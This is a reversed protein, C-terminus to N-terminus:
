SECKEEIKNVVFLQSFYNYIMVKKNMINLNKEIEKDKLNGKIENNINYKEKLIFINVKIYYL